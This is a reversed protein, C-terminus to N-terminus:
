RKRKSKNISGNLKRNLKDIQLQTAPMKSKDNFDDLNVHARDKISNGANALAKTYADARKHQAYAEADKKADALQKKLTENSNILKAMNMQDNMTRNKLEQQLNNRQDRLTNSWLQESRKKLNAQKFANKVKDYDATKKTLESNLGKIIEGHKKDSTSKGAVYGAGVAAGVGSAIAAGKLIKGKNAAITAKANALKEKYKKKKEAKKQAKEIKNGSEYVTDIFGLMDVMETLLDVDDGDELDACEVFEAYSMADEATIEDNNYAETILEVIEKKM